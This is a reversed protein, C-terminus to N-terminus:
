VRKCFINLQLDFTSRSTDLFPYKLLPYAEKIYYRFGAESIWGLIQHLEQQTGKKSHYEFFLHDVFHLKGRIDKLVEFESGEIDIKLFDIKKDIFHSLRKTRVEVSLNDKKDTSQCLHGSLAGDFNFIATGDKASLGLNYVQVDSFEFSALNEKLVLCINPDPEFCTVKSTPYLSKFYIASLGINSGCDVIFPAENESKFRYVEECFIEEYSHFFSDLHTFRLKHGKFRVVGGKGRDQIILKLKNLLSLGNRYDRLITSFTM